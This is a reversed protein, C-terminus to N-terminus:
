SQARVCLEWLGKFVLHNDKHDIGTANVCALYGGTGVVPVQSPELGYTAKMFEKAAHILGNVLGSYGFYMGANIADTTNKGIIAKPRDFTMTPLLAANNCLAMMATKFGPAIMTGIFNGDADVCTTTTATGCDVVICPKKGYHTFAGLTSALM